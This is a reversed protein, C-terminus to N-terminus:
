PKVPSYFPCTCCPKDLHAAHHCVACRPEEKTKPPSTHWPDPCPHFRWTQDCTPCRAPTEALGEALWAQYEDETADALWPREPTEAEMYTEFYADEEADHRKCCGHKPEHQEAPATSVPCHAYCWADGDETCCPHHVLKTEPPPSTHYDDPCRRGTYGYRGNSKPTNKRGCTPCREPTTPPSTHWPDTCDGVQREYMIHTKSPDDSGCAPCREPTEAEPPNPEESNTDGLAAEHRLEVEMMAQYFDRPSNYAAGRKDVFDTWAAELREVKARLRQNTANATKLAGRYKNREATLDDIDKMFNDRYECM